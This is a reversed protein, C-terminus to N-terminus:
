LSYLHILKIEKELLQVFQYSFILIFHQPSFIMRMLYFSSSFSQLRQFLHGKLPEPGLTLHNPPFMFCWSIPWYKWQGGKLSVFMQSQIQRSRDDVHQKAKHM